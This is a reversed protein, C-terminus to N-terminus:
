GREWERVRKGGMERSRVGYKKEGRERGDPLGGETPALRFTM